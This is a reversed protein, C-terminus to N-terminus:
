TKESLIDLVDYIAENYNAEAGTAEFVPANKKVCVYYWEGSKEDQGNYHDLFDVPRGCAECNIILDMIEKKMNKNELNEEIIMGAYCRAIKQLLKEEKM